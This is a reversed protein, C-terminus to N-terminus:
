LLLRCVLHRLSQLESTHEESRDKPRVRPNDALSADYAARRSPFGLTKYVEDILDHNKAAFPDEPNREPRYKEALRYCAADIEKQNANRPVGIVEYYDRNVSDM